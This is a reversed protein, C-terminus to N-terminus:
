TTFTTKQTEWDIYKLSRGKRDGEITQDLSTGLTLLHYIKENTRILGDYPEDLLRRIAEEINTETFLHTDGKVEIRNNEALWPRLIGTIVTRDLRKDRLPMAEDHSLYQWGIGCLPRYPQSKSDYDELYSLRM